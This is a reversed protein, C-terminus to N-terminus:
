LELLSVLILLDNKATDGNKIRDMLGQPTLWYYEAFDDKNYDPTADSRILYLKSFCHLGHEGSRFHGIKKYPIKDLNINVEEAAERKFADEYTEGTGVHGGISMDLASPFLTKHATRRPIWLKGAKNVIFGNVVRIHGDLGEAYVAKRTKQGIVVDHEDVLDLIENDEDVIYHYCVISM